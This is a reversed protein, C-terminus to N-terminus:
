SSPRELRPNDCHRFSSISSSHIYVSKYSIFVYDDEDDKTRLCNKKIWSINGSEASEKRARKQEDTM